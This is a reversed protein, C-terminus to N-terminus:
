WRVGWPVQGLHLVGIGPTHVSWGSVTSTPPQLIGLITRYFVEGSDLLLCGELEEELTIPRANGTTFNVEFDSDWKQYLPTLERLLPGLAVKEGEINILPRIPPINDQTM